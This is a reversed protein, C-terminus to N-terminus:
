RIISIDFTLCAQNGVWAIACDCLLIRISCPCENNGAGQVSSGDNTARPLGMIPLLICSWLRACLYELHSRLHVRGDKTQLALEINNSIDDASSWCPNTSQPELCFM